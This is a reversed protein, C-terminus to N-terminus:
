PVSGRPVIWQTSLKPAVSALADFDSDYHVITVTRGLVKAHHLATAAIQLDSVGAARGQGRAFLDAQLQFSITSIEPAPPLMLKARGTEFGIIRAHDAANRASFGAELAIPLCTAIDGHRVLLDWAARVPERSLRQIASNDVLYVPIM